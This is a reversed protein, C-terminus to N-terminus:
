ALGGADAVTLAHLRDEVLEVVKQRQLTTARRV